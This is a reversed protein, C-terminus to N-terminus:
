VRGVDPGPVGVVGQSETSRVCWRRMHVSANSGATLIQCREVIPEKLRDVIEWQLEGEVDLDPFLECLHPPAGRRGSHPTVPPGRFALASSGSLLNRPSPQVESPCHPPPSSCRSITSLSSSGMM